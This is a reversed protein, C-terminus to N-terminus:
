KLADKYNKFFDSIEKEGEPSPATQNGRLTVLESNKYDMFWVIEDEDCSQSTISVDQFDWVEFVDGEGNVRTLTAYTIKDAMDRIKQEEAADSDLFTIEIQGPVPELHGGDEDAVAMVPCIPLENVRVHREPFNEEKSSGKFMWKLKSKKKLILVSQDM